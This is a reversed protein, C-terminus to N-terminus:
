RSTERKDPETYRLSFWKEGKRSGGGGGAVWVASGTEVMEQELSQVGRLWTNLDSVRCASTEWMWDHNRDMEDGMNKEFTKGKKEVARM